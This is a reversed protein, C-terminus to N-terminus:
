NNAYALRDDYIWKVGGESVIAISDKYKKGCSIHDFDLNPTVLEGIGSNVVSCSCSTCCGLTTLMTCGEVSVGLRLANLICNQEAHITYDYKIPRSHRDYTHLVGKPLCNWGSSIVVKKETNILIAGVHTDNDKSMAATIHLINIFYNQYRETLDNWSM